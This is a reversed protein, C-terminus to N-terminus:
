TSSRQSAWSSLRSHVTCPRHSTPGSAWIGMSKAMAAFDILPDEFTNGIKAPGDVGRQRRLGMRQIHMVEQHYARNNHMVSLLPIGHHAATWLVGPAYLLDGDPQINVSLIGKERNALAAGVAAPAGYGVGFGGSGGMFHHHKNMTWLRQPWHSQFFTESVLSWQRGKIQEWIEMCLRATSVPSANWAYTAEERSRERMEGFAQRHREKREAIRGRQRNSMARRVEDILAPLTTEADGAISVDVPLYRSFNQYNSKLYLDGVGLSILKVDTKALSVEQHHVLDRLSKVAGWFDTMEMGLIVDANAVLRRNLFTQNLYHDNPFNMRGFNDVVPAQLTEALEVLRGIARRLVGQLAHIM